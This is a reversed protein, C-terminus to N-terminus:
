EGRMEIAGKSLARSGVGYSIKVREHVFILIYGKQMFAVYESRSSFEPVYIKYLYRKSDCRVLFWFSGYPIYDPHLKCLMERSASM